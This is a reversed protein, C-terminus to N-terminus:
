WICKNSKPAFLTAFPPDDPKVNSLVFKIKLTPLVVTLVCIECVAIVVVAVTEVPLTLVVPTTFADIPILTPALTFMLVVDYSIPLAVLLLIKVAVNKVTPLVVLPATLAKANFMEPTTADPM